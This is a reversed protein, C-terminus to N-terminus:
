VEFCVSESYHNKDQSAMFLYLHTANAPKPPLTFSGNLDSRKLGTATVQSFKGGASSVVMLEDLLREGRVHPDNEWSVTITSADQPLKEARLNQPVTLKGASVKLLRADMLTGDMALAPMNQKMFWAYGNMQEAAGNWIKSMQESRLARWLGSAQSIRQRYLLQEQTWSERKRKPAARVYSKGNLQFFVLNGIKGSVLDGINQKIKAM